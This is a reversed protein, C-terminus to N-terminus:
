KSVDAWQFIVGISGTITNGHAVIHDAAIAPIYGGSAAITDMVAVVPRAKAIDRLENYIAESGVTTGGPSDIRVIVAKATSSKAIDKLLDLTAQDGTIVGDIRVRAIHDERKKLDEFGTTGAVLAVIAGIFAIIAVVRWATLKRRLRRRDVMLEAENLM